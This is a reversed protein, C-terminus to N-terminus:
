GERVLKFTVTELPFKLQEDLLPTIANSLDSLKVLLTLNCSQVTRNDESKLPMIKTVRVVPGNSTYLLESDESVENHRGKLTYIEAQVDDSVVKGARLEPSTKLQIGNNEIPGYYLRHVKVSM